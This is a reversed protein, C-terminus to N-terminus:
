GAAGGTRARALTQELGDRPILVRGRKGTEHIRIVPLVGTETWTRVTSKPVGLMWAVEAVTWTRRSLAAEEPRYALRDTM